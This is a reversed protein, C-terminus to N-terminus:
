ANKSKAMPHPMGFWMTLFAISSLSGLSPSIDRSLQTTCAKVVQHVLLLVGATSFDSLMFCPKTCM